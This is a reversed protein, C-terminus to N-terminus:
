LGWGGRRRGGGGTPAHRAPSPGAPPDGTEAAAVREAVVALEDEIATVAEHIPGSSALGPFRERDLRDGSEAVLRELGEGNQWDIEGGCELAANEPSVFTRRVETAVPAPEADRRSVPRDEGLLHRVIRDELMQNLRVARTLRPLLEFARLVEPTPDENEEVARAQREIAEGVAMSIETLRELTALQREYIAQAWAPRDASCDNAPFTSMKSCIM